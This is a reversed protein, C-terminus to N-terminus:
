TAYDDPNGTYDAIAVAEADEDQVSEYNNSVQKFALARKNLEDMAMPGTLVELVDGNEDYVKLRPIEVGSPTKFGMLSIKGYTTDSSIFGDKIAFYIEKLNADELCALAVNNSTERQVWDQITSTEDMLEKLQENTAKIRRFFPDGGRGVATPGKKESPAHIRYASEDIIKREGNNQAQAEQTVPNKDVKFDESM